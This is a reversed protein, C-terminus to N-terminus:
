LTIELMGKNGPVDTAIAKIKSGVLQNNALQTTYTWDIGNPNLDASEKELLTGNPAYIEVQVDVVRFDDYAGVIIKDGLAGRYNSRDIKNVVPVSLFDEMARCYVNQRPRLAAKYGLAMSQDQAKIIAKAYRSAILFREMTKKQEPTPNGKRKKPAKAVIAKGQWERFVLEDGLLGQLKGTIISNNSAM